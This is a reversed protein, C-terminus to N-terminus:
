REASKWVADIRKLEADIAKGEYFSLWGRLRVTQGPECDPFRPDAHLCPCRENFWVRHVPEWATIIWRRGDTSKALAYPKREVKNDNTQQEFGAASKLMVCNQVRLDTLKEPTGNKLWLEMLVHDKQPLVIAGYRIGNPLVREIDLRGDAGRNWEMQKLKTGQKDFVTPIHTHALYTLGLNSWIAEPVDVVVFDHDGWPTFVSIKTERQPRIAGELFGIRPHRGGPWPLVLLSERGKQSQPRIKWEAAHRAVENPAMGMAAGAEENSFGHYRILNELWYRQEAKGSVQRSEVEPQPDVADQGVSSQNSAVVALSSLLLSVWCRRITM